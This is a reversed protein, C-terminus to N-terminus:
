AHYKGIRDMRHQHGVVLIPLKGGLLNGVGLGSALNQNAYRGVAASLNVIEDALGLADAAHDIRRRLVVVVEHIPRSRASPTSSYRADRPMWTQLASKRASSQCWIEDARTASRAILRSSASPLPMRSSCSM